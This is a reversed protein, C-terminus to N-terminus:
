KSMSAIALGNHQVNGAGGAINVGINGTAGSLAGAGLSATGEFSGSFALEATQDNQDTAVMAGNANKATVTSTSAAMSNNQVNGVGSAINVGINGTASKLSNDGLSANVNFNKISASGGSSQNNFVQANGFVNGADISALSADNAQANDIGEAINVGINGSVGTAAGTGTTATLNGPTQTDIHQTVSGKVTTNDNTTNSTLGWVAAIGESASSSSNEYSSEKGSVSAYGSGSDRQKVWAAGQGSGETAAFNSNVSHSNSYNSENYGAALGGAVYGSGSGSHPGNHVDYGYSGGIIGGAVIHGGQDHSSHSSSGSINADQASYEYGGAISASSQNGYAYKGSASFGSSQKSSSTSAVAVAAYASGNTSFQSTSNNVSTTVHGTEYSQANPSITSHNAWVNQTNNVVAGATSNVDVCGFLTVWGQVGVEEGVLTANFIFPDKVGNAFVSTSAAALVATAILTRKM